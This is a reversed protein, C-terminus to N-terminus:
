ESRLRFFRSPENTQAYHFYDFPAGSNTIFFLSTWSNLNTSSQFSYRANAAGPLNWRFLNTRGVTALKFRVETPQFQAFGSPYLIPANTSDDFSGWRLLVTATAESMSSPAGLFFGLGNMWVPAANNLEIKIHPQIVGPGPGGANGNQAAHNIWNTTTTRTLLQAVLDRGTIIIDPQNLRRQVSQYYVANGSYYVDTWQNTQPLFEGSLTSYAHRVFNIKEIGPRYASQVLPTNTNVAEVDSPLSEFRIRAGSLLFRIGGIDDRSLTTVYTGQEQYGGGVISTDWNSLPDVNVETADCFPVGQTPSPGYQSIQYTFLTDNVFPTPQFSVPDFNRQIVVFGYNTTGASFYDRICFTYRSPSTLGLQEVLAALLTTKLDTLGAAQALYNIRWPNMPYNTLNIQSAPPISNLIQFASEAAAVGNTGFYNLFGQDFGYTVVPINWRYGESINMPGGMDYNTFYGKTTEMWSAFPGLLAFAGAKSTLLSLLM